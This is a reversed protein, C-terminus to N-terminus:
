SPDKAPVFITSLYSPTSLYDILKLVTESDQGLHEGIFSSELRGYASLLEKIRQFEKHCKYIMIAASDDKLINILSNTDDLGSILHFSENAQTIKSGIKAALHQFAAISPSILVKDRPRKNKILGTVISATSYFGPDGLTIFSVKKNLKLLECIYDAIQSYAKKPDQKMPVEVRTVNVDLVQRLISEAISASKKSVAPAIIEDSKEILNIAELTMYGPYGPGVGIAAFHFDPTKIKLV